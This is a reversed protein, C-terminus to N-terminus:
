MVVSEKIVSESVPVEMNDQYEWRHSLEIVEGTEEITFEYPDTEVRMIHGPFQSGILQQCTEEDFTSPVSCTKVTFYMKGTQQSKVPMVGGQLILVFFEDGDKSERKKYDKITVMLKKNQYNVIRSSM